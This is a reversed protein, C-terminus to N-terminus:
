HKPPEILETLVGRVSEHHVFAVRRNQIGIRPEEDILEVGAKALSGLAQEIDDVLYAVHHLGEGDREIFRGVPTDEEVPELLEIHGEGVELLAAEVGQSEIRERHAVPMGLTGEYLLVAQAMDSVAIGIHDIRNLEISM